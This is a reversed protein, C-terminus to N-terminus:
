QIGRLVSASLGSSKQFVMLAVNTDEISKQRAGLTSCKDQESLHVSSTKLHLTAPLFSGHPYWIARSHTMDTNDSPEPARPWVVLIGQSYQELCELSRTSRSCVVGPDVRLNPM